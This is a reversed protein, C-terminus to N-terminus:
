ERRRYFSIGATEFGLNSAQFVVEAGGVFLVGGPRLADYFRKYLRNKVEATFYIVVNRCVILDFGSGIENKDRHLPTLLNHYRFDIRGRLNEAVYCGGDPVNDARHSGPRRFYRALLPPPVQAMEEASYPGGAQARELASRDIDTALIYHQRFFGSVEALMIALSYPEHGHSCGASWVQLRPPRPSATRLLEPFIFRQLYEFKEPDRFFSSVNITLYDKFQSIATPDNSVARFFRHWTDHGSRILYTRLRRQVQPTKYCALDVGTLRLVKSKVFTYERVDMATTM